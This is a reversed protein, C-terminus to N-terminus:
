ELYENRIWPACMEVPLERVCRTATLQGTDPDVASLFMADWAVVRSVAAACADILESISAGERVAEDIRRTADDLRRADMAAHMCRPYGPEAPGSSRTSSSGSGATTSGCGSRSCRATSGTTATTTSARPGPPCNVRGGTAAGRTSAPGIR